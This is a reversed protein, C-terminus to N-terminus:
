DNSFVEKIVNIHEKEAYRPYYVDFEKDPTIYLVCPLCYSEAALLDSESFPSSIPHSHYIAVLENSLKVDLYTEPHIEFRKEPTSSSNECPVACIGDEGNVLFGCVEESSKSLSHTKIAKQIMNM